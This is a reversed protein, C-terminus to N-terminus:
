IQKFGAKAAPNNKKGGNQGNWNIPWVVVPQM